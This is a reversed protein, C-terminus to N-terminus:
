ILSILGSWRKDFYGIDILSQNAEGPKWVMFDYWGEIALCKVEFPLNEMKNGGIIVIYRNKNLPNPYVMRVGINSGAYSKNAVTVGAPSFAVPLQGIIRKIFSNTQDNGFLILNKSEIDAPTIENDTKHPCDQSYDERWAQCFAQCLTTAQQREEVPGETGQIVVFGDTFAHLIPGEITANKSLIGPQETAGGGNDIVISDSDPVGEFSVQGDTIVRLSRSRDFGLNALNIEYASVNETEVAISGNKALSAKIRACKMTEVAENIKLWYASAYKLQWTSIQVQNPKGNRVIGKYFRFSKAIPEEPYYNTHAYPMVEFRAQVGLERCRNVYKASDEISIHEDHEPSLVYIPINSLNEVCYIPSNAKLWEKAHNKSSRDGREITETESFVGLLAIGAFKDPYRSALMVADRGGACSGWLYIRDPDIAYDNEVAEITDLIDTMGKQNLSSGGRTGSGTTWLVAYGDREAARMFHEILGTYAVYVSKLFPRYPWQDYPVFVVLPIPGRKQAYQPPVYVMYHEVQDDIRSRFGRMHRGPIDRFAEIGRELNGLVTELEDIVYVVKVQWDTKEPKKNEAALLHEYRIFLAELNIRTHEDPLFRAARKKYDALATEADGRYFEMEFRDSPVDVRCYYLGRDLDQVAIKGEGKLRYRNDDIANRNRDLIQVQRVTDVGDLLLDLELDDDGAIISKKIVKNMGYERAKERALDITMLRAVFRLWKEKSVVKALLMNKGSRLHVPKFNEFRSLSGERDREIVLENNLWVKLGMGQMEAALFVDQPKNVEIERAAYAVAFGDLQMIKGLDLVHGETDADESIFNDGSKIASFRAYDSDTEAMDFRALVDDNYLQRIVQEESRKESKEPESFPGLIRWRTFVIEEQRPLNNILLVPHSGVISCSLLPLSMAIIWIFHLYTSRRM